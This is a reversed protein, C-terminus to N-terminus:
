SSGCPHTCAAGCRTDFFLTGDVIDCCGHEPVCANAEPLERKGGDGQASGAADLESDDTGGRATGFVDTARRTTTDVLFSLIAEENVPCTKLVTSTCSGGADCIYTCIGATAGTPCTARVAAYSTAGAWDPFSYGIGIYDFTCYLNASNQPSCAIVYPSGGGSYTRHNRGECILAGEVRAHASPLALALLALALCITTM